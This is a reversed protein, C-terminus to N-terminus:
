KYEYKNILSKSFENRHKRNRKSTWGFQQQTTHTDRDHAQMWDPLHTHFFFVCITIISVCLEGIPDIEQFQYLNGAKRKRWREGSWIRCKRIMAGSVAYKSFIRNKDALINGNLNIDINKEILVCSFFVWFHKSEYLFLMGYISPFFSDKFTWSRNQDNSEMGSTNVTADHTVAVNQIQSVIATFLITRSVLYWLSHFAPLSLPSSRSLAWLWM